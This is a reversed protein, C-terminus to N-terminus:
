ADHLARNWAGEPDNPSKKLEQAFVPGVTQFATAAAAGITGGAIGGVTGGAPGAAVTGAGAGLLGGTVGGAVTPYSKGFRYGMKPLAKGLPETIDGWEFPAAAPSTEQVPQPAVSSLATISQGVEGTASKLGQGIAQLTGPIPETSEPPKPPAPTAPEDWAVTPEAAATQVPEDWAVDEAM